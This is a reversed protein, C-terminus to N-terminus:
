HGTRCHTSRPLPAQIQQIMHLQICHVLLTGHYRRMHIPHLRRQGASSETSLPSRCLVGTCDSSKLPKVAPTHAGRPCHHQSSSLLAVFMGSAWSGGAGWGGVSVGWFQGQGVVAPLVVSMPTSSSKPKLLANTCSQRHNTCLQHGGARLARCQCHMHSRNVGLSQWRTAQRVHLAGSLWAKKKRQDCACPDCARADCAGRECPTICAPSTKIRACM